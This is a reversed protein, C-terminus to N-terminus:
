GPWGSGSRIRVGGAPQAPAARESRQSCGEALRTIRAESCSAATWNRPTAVSQLFRCDAAATQCAWYGGPAVCPTAQGVSQCDVVHALGVSGGGTHPHQGTFGRDVAHFRHHQLGELVRVGVSPQSICGRSIAFATSAPIMSRWCRPRYVGVCSGDKSAPWWWHPGAAPGDCSPLPHGRQTIGVSADDFWHCRPSPRPRIRQRLRQRVLPLIVEGSQRLLYSVKFPGQHAPEQLKLHAGLDELAQEVQSRNWDIAITRSWGPDPEPETCLRRAQVPSGSVPTPCTCSPLVNGHQWPDVPSAWRVPSARAPMASFNSGCLWWATNRSSWGRISIWFCCGIPWPSSVAAPANLSRATPAELNQQM